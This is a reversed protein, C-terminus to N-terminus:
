KHSARRRHEERRLWFDERLRREIESDDEYDPLSDLYRQIFGIHPFVYDAVLCGILLVVMFGGFILGCVVAEDLLETTM